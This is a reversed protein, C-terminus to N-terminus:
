PYTRLLYECHCSPLIQGCQFPPNFEPYGVAGLKFVYMQYVTRSLLSILSLLFLFSLSNSVCIPPIKWLTPGMGLSIILLHSLLIERQKGALFLM